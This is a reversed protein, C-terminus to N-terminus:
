FQPFNSAWLHPTNLARECTTGTGGTAGTWTADVWLIPFGAGHPGVYDHAAV